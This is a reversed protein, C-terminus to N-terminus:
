TTSSAPKPLSTYNRIIKGTEVDIVRGTGSPGGAVFLRGRNDIKLGVSPFDPGLGESILRREGTRLQGCLHRRQGSLRLVGDCAPWHNGGAPPRQTARNPGPITTGPRHWDNPRDASCRACPWAIRRCASSSHISDDSVYGGLHSQAYAAVCYTSRVCCSLPPPGAFIEPV